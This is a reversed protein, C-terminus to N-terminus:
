QKKNINQLQSQRTRHFLAKFIIIIIKIIMIIIKIIIIKIIIIINLHMKVFLRYENKNLRDPMCLVIM